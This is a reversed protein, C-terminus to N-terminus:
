FTPFKHLLSIKGILHRDHPEELLAETLKLLRFLFPSLSVFVFQKALIIRYQVPTPVIHLKHSHIEVALDFGPTVLSARLSPRSRNAFDAM